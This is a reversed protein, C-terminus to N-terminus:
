LELKPESKTKGQFRSLNEHSKRGLLDLSRGREHLPVLERRHPFGEDLQFQQSGQRPINIPQITNSSGDHEGRRFTSLISQARQRIGKDSSDSAVPVRSSSTSATLNFTPFSSTLKPKFASVSPIPAISPAQSLETESITCLLDQESQTRKPEDFDEVEAKAGKRQRTPKEPRSESKNERGSRRRTLNTLGDSFDKMVNNKSTITKESSSAEVASLTPSTSFSDEPIARTSRTSRSSKESSSSTSKSHKLPAPATPAEVAAACADKVLNELIGKRARANPIALKPSKIAANEANILKFLVFERMEEVDTFVAPRPLPPGFKPVNENTVVEVRYATRGGREEEHVVIFVHLFQSRIAAPNFPQAGEVFVIHRKKQIQQKDGPAAPMLTAVHYAVEYDKWKQIYTYAGSDGCQPLHFAAFIAQYYLNLKGRTDLGGAWGTYWQLEIKHGLIDLFRDFKKSDHSNSFWEEEKTQGEKIYLVGFKYRYHLVDEDLILLRRELGSEFMQGATLKHMKSPIIKPNAAQLVTKWASNSSSVPTPPKRRGSSSTPPSAPVTFLFSDAFVRYVDPLEQTRVIVRYQMNPTTSSSLARRTNIAIGDNEERRDLSTIGLGSLGSTDVPERVITVLMPENEVLGCYTRYDKGVFYTRLWRANQDMHENIWQSYDSRGSGAEDFHPEQANIADLGDNLDADDGARNRGEIKYGKSPIVMAKEFTKYHQSVCQNAIHKISSINLRTRLEHVLMTCKIQWISVIDKVTKLTVNNPDERKRDTSKRGKELYELMNSKDMQTGIRIQERIDSMVSIMSNKSLEETEEWDVLNMMKEAINAIESLKDAPFQVPPSPESGTKSPVVSTVLKDSNNVLTSHLTTLATTIITSRANTVMNLINQHSKPPTSITSSSLSPKPSPSPNQPTKQMLIPLPPMPPPGSITSDNLPLRNNTIGESSSHRRSGAFNTTVSRDPQPSSPLPIANQSDFRQNMVSSKSEQLSKARQRQQSQKTTVIDSRNETEKNEEGFSIEGLDKGFLMKGVPKSEDGAESGVEEDLQLRIETSSRPESINDETISITTSQRSDVEELEDDRGPNTGGATSDVTSKRRPKSRPFSSSLSVPPFPGPSIHPQHDPSQEGGGTTTPNKKFVSHISIASTGRKRQWSSPEGSHSDNRSLPIPFLQESSNTSPASASNTLVLRNQHTAVFHKVHNLSSKLAKPIKSATSLITSTTSVNSRVSDESTRQKYYISSDFTDTSTQELSSPLSPPINLASLSPSEPLSPSPPTFFSPDEISIQSRKNRRPSVVAPINSHEARSPHQSSRGSFSIEVPLSPPPPSSTTVRIDPLEESDGAVFSSSLSSHESVSHISRARNHHHRMSSVRKPVNGLLDPISM